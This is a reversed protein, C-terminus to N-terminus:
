ITRSAYTFQIFKYPIQIPSGAKLVLALKYSDGPTLYKPTIMVIPDTQVGRFRYSLYKKYVGQTLDIYERVLIESDSQMNSLDLYGTIMIYNAVSSLEIIIVETDYIDLTATGQYPTIDSIYWVSM